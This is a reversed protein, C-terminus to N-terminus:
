DGTDNGDAFTGFVTWLYYAWSADAIQQRVLTATAGVAGTSDICDDAAIATGDLYLAEGSPPCIEWGTGETDILTFGIYYEVDTLIIDTEGDDGQNTIYKSALIHAETVTTQTADNTFAQSAIDRGIITIANTADDAISEVNAHVSLDISASGNTVVIADGTETINALQPDASGDGIPIQGNSAVGLVSLAATGNGIMIGGNTFTGAGTGGDTVPVDTGGARYIINSEINVDGAGQRTLTTDSANGINVANFYPADGTGVGISTRLTAGSEVAPDTTGDGVLMQGNTLVATAVIGSTANGILVGGDTLTSVGTGGENVAWPNTTNVWNGTIAWNDDLPLFGMDIYNDSDSDLETTAFVLGGVLLFVVIAFLIKGRM